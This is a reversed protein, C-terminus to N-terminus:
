FNFAVVARAVLGPSISTLGFGTGIAVEYRGGDLDLAVTPGVAYRAGDEAEAKFTEELDQGVAEAGVRLWENFRWAAGLTAFYDIDDRGSAFVKDARFNADLRFPGEDLAGAFIASVGNAGSVGEHIGSGTLSAKLHSYPSTIQWTAGAAYNHAPSSTGIDAFTVALYPAIFDTAGYAVQVTSSGNATAVNVPLPRDASIGSGVGFTYSASFVGSSPTTPDISFAFPREQETHRSLDATASITGEQDDAARASFALSALFSLALAPWLGISWKSSSSAM